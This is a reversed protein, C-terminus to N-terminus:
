APSASPDGFDVALDVYEISPVFGLRRNAALIPENHEMNQTVVETVGEERLLLIHRTKLATALGRGRSSPAVGTFFTNRAQPQGPRAIVLTFGTPQGEEYAVLMAGPLELMGVFAEYSLGGGGAMDPSEGLRDVVFAHMVRLQEEDHGPASFPRLDHGHSTALEELTVPDAGAVDMASEVHRGVEPLSWARVAAEADSQGIVCNYILGPVCERAAAEVRARLATGVGRRRDSPVVNVIAAGYGGAAVPERCAAAFGVPRGDIEAVWWQIDMTASLEDWWSAQWAFPNGDNLAALDDEAERNRTSVGEIM